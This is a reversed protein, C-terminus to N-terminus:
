SARGLKGLDPATHKKCRNSADGPSSGDGSARRSRRSPKKPMSSIRQVAKPTEEKPSAAEGDYLSSLPVGLANALEMARNLRPWTRGNEISVITNGTWELRAALKEQSIGLDQRAKRVREGFGNM